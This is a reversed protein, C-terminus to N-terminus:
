HIRSEFNQSIYKKDNIIFEILFGGVVSSHLTVLTLLTIDVLNNASVPEKRLLLLYLGPLVFSTVTYLYISVKQHLPPNEVSTIINYYFYLSVVLCAVAVLGNSVDNESNSSNRLIIKIVYSGGVLYSAVFLFTTTIPFRLLYKM